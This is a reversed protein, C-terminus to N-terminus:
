INVRTIFLINLRCYQRLCVSLALFFFYIREHKLKNSKQAMSESSNYGSPTEWFIVNEDNKEAFACGNLQFYMDVAEWSQLWEQGFTSRYTRMSTTCSFNSANSVLNQYSGSGKCWELRTSWDKSEFCKGSFTLVNYISIDHNCAGLNHIPQLYIQTLCNVLFLRLNHTHLLVEDSHPATQTM